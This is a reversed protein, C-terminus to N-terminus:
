EMEVSKRKRRRGNMKEHEQLHKCQYVTFLSHIPQNEREKWEEELERTPIYESDEGDTSPLSPSMEIDKEEISFTM